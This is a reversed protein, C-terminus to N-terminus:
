LSKQVPASLILSMTPPNGKHWPALRHKRMWEGIASSRLEPFGTWFTDTINVPVTTGDLEIFVVAWKPDFFQKANQRGVSVGLTPANRTGFKGSKRGSVNM